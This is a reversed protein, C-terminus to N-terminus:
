SALVPEITRSTKEGIISHAALVGPIIMPMLLFLVGFQQGIVAQFVEQPSLDVLAGTAGTSTATAPVTRGSAPSLKVAAYAAVLPLLTLLVPMLVLGALLGRQQRVELWEKHLIVLVKTM